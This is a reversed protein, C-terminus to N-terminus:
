KNLNSRNIIVQQQKEESVTTLVTLLWLEFIVLALALPMMLYGGFDHFFKELNEGSIMTFVIATITLRLTNCLIAIPLSSIIVILKEWWERQVLMVVLCIIIIFATVMRLGNCAEAVAVSTGNLHIINGDRTIAYGLMELCFVASTTAFKQLPLMVATHVSVPLPLMLCLFLLVTSVKKLVQWGFLFLTLSFISLIISLREASSYLYFTGLIRFGQAAIFAFLGWM